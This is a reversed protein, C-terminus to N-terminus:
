SQSAASGYQSRLEDLFRDFLEPGPWQRGRLETRAGAWRPVLALPILCPKERTLRGTLRALPVSLPLPMPIKAIEHEYPQACWAAPSTVNYDRCAVPRHPHISCSEDALFPCPLDLAFYQRAVPLVPETVVEPDLLEDIMKREDLASATRDFRELAVQRREPRFSEVVDMLHFAEPPSVPVMHRCCAGCGARCSLSRGAEQELGTAREVLADTLHCATPVLGALRMPGSTVGVKGRIVGDPTPLEVTRLEVGSPLSTRDSM